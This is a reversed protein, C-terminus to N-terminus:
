YKSELHSLKLTENLDFIFGFNINVKRNLEILGNLKSPPELKFDELDIEKSGSIYFASKGCQNISCDIRYKRSLGALTIKFEAEKGGLQFIMKELQYYNLEIIIDPYRDAKLLKVFDRYIIPNRCSFGVVPIKIEYQESGSGVMLELDQASLDYPALEKDLDFTNINSEGSINIYGQCASWANYAHLDAQGKVPCYPLLIILLFRVSIKM